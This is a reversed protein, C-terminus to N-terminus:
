PLRGHSQQRSAAPGLFWLPNACVPQRWSDRKSALEEKVRHQMALALEVGAAGGGVVVLAVLFVCPFFRDWIEAGPTKKEELSPM